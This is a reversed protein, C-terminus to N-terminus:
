PPTTLYRALAAYAVDGSAKVGPFDTDREAKTAYRITQTFRTGGPVADLTATVVIRLPSFGYTEVHVVRTPPDVVEYTGFVELRRGSPRVFVQRITGGVRLDVDVSELTIDPGKMWRRIHAAETLAAFVRAPPVELTRSIVIETDNPMTVSPPQALATAAGAVLIAAVAM